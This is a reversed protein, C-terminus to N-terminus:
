FNGGVVLAGGGSVPVAAVRTETGRPAIMFMLGTAIACAGTVGFGINTYLTDRRGRAELADAEVDNLASQLDRAASYASWGFYATAGGSVVTAAAYPWWRMYIPRRAERRAPPPPPIVAPPAARTIVLPEREVLRNGHADLAVLRIVTRTGSPLDIASRPAAAVERAEEARGDIAHLVRVKDVLRVPDSVILTFAGPQGAAELKVDIPSPAANAAAAFPRTIKPSTGPPLTAGPSLALLRKFAETAADTNGLAAEVVGSLRYLEASEAPGCRGARRATALVAHAGSYDSIAVAQRAAAVCDDARAAGELLILVLVVGRLMAALRDNVACALM